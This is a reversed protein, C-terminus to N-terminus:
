PYIGIFDISFNGPGTAPDLRLQELTGTWGAVSSMDIIYDRYMTDNAVITFDLHKAENWSSDAVTRFYVQATTSSTGNKMRIKIKKNSTIPTNLGTASLLYPDTGTSTGGIYGGTQTGFGSIDNYAIWRDTTATFPWLNAYVYPSTGNVMIETFQLRYYNSENPNPRLSTANIKVYRAMQKPFYFGQSNFGPKGFGTQTSVTMWNTNDNSLQITFDVPFGYGTNAGDGRPWLTVTDIEKLAGLDVTIWETHNATLSNNSSWGSGPNADNAQRLYWGAGEVSSSATVTRFQALTPDAVTPVVPTTDEAYVFNLRGGPAADGNVYFDMPDGDTQMNDSWKFQLKLPKSLDDLDLMSRPIALHMQNGSAVYSVTGASTWSWGGTSKEVTTTTSTVGTRNVIYDYGKWGNTDNGDTNILLRMWKSDTYSTIPDVTKVYFYLNTNDRAIKMEDFDNRGTNNTYTVSGYGGHNRSATDGTYDRYNPTVNTWQSFDTNITVTKQASPKMQPEMGKFRRIQAIMQMYYNDQHGGMMPEIDRSFSQTAQDIFRVPRGSPGNFRQAMWENWGTIFVIQPDQAMAFNWQEAINYGYNVAGSSTDNSGFHYSRSWNGGYNYFPTDSMVVSPHQAVSVNVIEKEGLNNNYVRQPRQFEIWPFGNTKQAENPWQPLRFTFFSQITSSVESPNGIILPKGKWNFWLDPYRNAAYIDNYISTVTSGSSSNTYFTIKPVKYGQLRLEDMIPLLVDTVNQYTFANTVDFVLFDVGADTLLQIHKRLVWPDTAFYYNLLSEGWHHFDGVGGWLPNSANNVAAPDAQLIKTIDYPGATGHQGAWLFYFIGVYKGSRVSPAEGYEPLKRGLEDMGSLTGFSVPDAYSVGPTRLSTGHVPLLGLLLVSALAVMFTQRWIGVNKKM